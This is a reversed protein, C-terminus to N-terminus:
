SRPEIKYYRMLQTAVKKFIPACVTGGYYSPSPEDMIVVVTFRPKDYPLFGIFSSTFKRHSYTKNAEVKQATGTKGAPFYGEVEALKGTGEEVVGRLIERLKEANRESVVRHLRKSEFRRVMQGTSDQIRDIIRPRIYYGGNALSSVACALQLATVGLEQGMSISCLSLNSWEAPSRVIGDVEGPLDIGTKKGFGFRRMYRYLRNEGLILAAKMTGINSSYKIVDRFSLWGHPKHDHYTHRGWKFEGNECFFEDEVSFLGEEIVGSATVIKFSSGPEFFDTVARNRRTEVPFESINNPDYTPRNALALIDGTYPDMVIISGGKANFKEFSSNLEREAIAQVVNDITLIVDNGDAPPIERYKYGPVERKKADRISYRWGVTGKLFKDFTLEIGELGQEDVGVFGIIHSALTGNPYVRHPEKVLGVGEINVSRIAKELDPSIKRALWVFRKKQQVRELIKDKDIKLIRSLERVASEKDEVILPDVFVSNLNISVAFEKLNRDYIVGRKPLLCMYTDYQGSALKSLPKAAGLQVCFLRAALFAFLVLLFYLIKRSRPTILKHM